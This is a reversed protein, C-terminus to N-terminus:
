FNYKVIRYSVIEKGTNIRLIYIGPEVKYDIIIKSKNFYKNNQIIKGNVDLISVSVKNYTRNFDLNFRGNSPNPFVHFNNKIVKQVGLMSYGYQSSTDVCGNKTIEVAYYGFTSPSYTQNTEGTIPSYGGNGDLWQYTAFNEVSKLTNSGTKLVQRNIRNIKLNIAIISDCGLYSTLTDNYRGSSVYIKGSPSSYKFCATDNITDINLASFSLNLLYVTDCGFTMVKVDQFNGSSYYKKNKWTYYNPCSSVTDYLIVQCNYEASGIDRVGIIPRNQADSFDVVFGSDIVISGLKPLLTKTFGGNNKLTDLNLATFNIKNKDSPHHGIISDEFVNYGNSVITDCFMNSANGNKVIISGQVIAMTENIGASTSYLVGGNISSNDYFTSNKIIAKVVPVSQTSGSFHTKIAGGNQSAFNKTFTSHTIKFYAPNISSNRSTLDMIAGGNQATNNNFTSKNIEYKSLLSVGYIAGGLTSCSNYSFTSENFVFKLIPSARGYIAGAYGTSKNNLFSLRSSIFDMNIGSNLSLAGGYAAYNDKFIVNNMEIYNDLLSIFNSAICSYYIAGGHHNSSDNIFNSNNVFLTMDEDSYAYIAGGKGNAKNNTFDCGEIILSDTYPTYRYDMNVFLAGGSGAASNRDFKTNKIKIDQKVGYTRIRIAGANGTSNNNKFICNEILYNGWGFSYSNIAGGFGSQNNKFISNKIIIKDSGTTHINLAGGLTNKTFVCKDLTLDLDTSSIDIAGGRYCNNDTFQTNLINVVLKQAANRIQLGIAANKVFGKFLCNSINLEDGKFHIGNGIFYFSTDKGGVFALSDITVRLPLTGQARMFFIPATKKGSLFLTDTTNYLGIITISKTTSIKTKLLVTANGYKILNPSFRIVDGSSASDITARLSGVGSDNTNTVIKVGAISYNSLFALILIAILKKM